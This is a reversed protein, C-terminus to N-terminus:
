VVSKRDGTGQPKVKIVLYHKTIEEGTFPVTSTETEVTIEDLFVTGGYNDGLHLSLELGSVTMKKDYGAADGEFISVIPDTNEHLSLMTEFDYISTSVESVVSARIVINGCEDPSVSWQTDEYQAFVDLSAALSIVLAAALIGLKRAMPFRPKADRIRKPTDKKRM